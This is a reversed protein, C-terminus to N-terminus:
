FRLRPVQQGRHTNVERSLIQEFFKFGPLVIHQLLEDRQFALNLLCEGLERRDDFAGRRGHPQPQGRQAGLGRSRRQM